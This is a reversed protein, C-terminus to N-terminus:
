PHLPPKAVWISSGSSRAVPLMSALTSASKATTVQAPCLTFLTHGVAITVQPPGNVLHTVPSAATQGGLYLNWLLKGNTAELAFFHGERNGSFPVNSATTVIEACSVDAM